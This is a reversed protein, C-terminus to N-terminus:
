TLLKKRGVALGQFEKDVSHNNRKKPSNRFLKGNDKKNKGEDEELEM